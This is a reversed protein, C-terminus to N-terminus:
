ILNKCNDRVVEDYPNEEGIAEKYCEDCLEGIDDKDQDFLPRACEICNEELKKM